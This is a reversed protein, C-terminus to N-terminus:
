YTKFQVFDCEFIIGSKTQNDFKVNPSKAFDQTKTVTVIVIADKLDLIGFINLWYIWSTNDLNSLDCIKLNAPRDCHILCQWIYM